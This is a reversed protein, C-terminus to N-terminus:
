PEILRLWEHELIGYVDSDRWGDRILVAERLRGERTMGAKKLVRGSAVNRPDCTAYIRHLGFRDFGLELLRRALETGLGLGWQDPHLVYAIEGSRFRRDRLYLAGSGIPVDNGPLTAALTFDSRPRAAAAVLVAQLFAQTEEPTNPGWAQFRCVEPRSAWAHVAPWDRPGFERLVLRQSRVDAIRQDDAQVPDM